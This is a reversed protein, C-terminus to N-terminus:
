VIGSKAKKFEDESIGGKIKLDYLKELEDAKIVLSPLRANDKKSRGIWQKRNFL